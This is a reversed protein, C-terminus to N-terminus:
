DEDRGSATLKRPFLKYMANHKSIGLEKAYVQEVWKELDEPRVKEIVALWKLSYMATDVLTDVLTVGDAGNLLVNPAIADFRDYKRALNMWVGVEGRKAFSRKYTREREDHFPALFDMLKRVREEHDLLLPTLNDFKSDDVQDTHDESM